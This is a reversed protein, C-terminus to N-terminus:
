KYAESNSARIRVRVIEGSSLDAPTGISSHTELTCTGGVTLDSADLAKAVKSNGAGDNTLEVSFAILRRVNAAAGHLKMAVTYVGTTPAGVTLAGNLFAGTFVTPASVGNCVFTGEVDFEHPNPSGDYPYNAPVTV